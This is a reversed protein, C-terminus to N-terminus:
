NKRKGTPVHTAPPQFQRKQDSRGGAYHMSCDTLPASHILLHFVDSLGATNRLVPSALALFFTTIAWGWRGLSTRVWFQSAERPMMRAGWVGPGQWPSNGGGKKKSKQARHLGRPLKRHSQTRKHANAHTPSPPAASCHTGILVRSESVGINSGRSQWMRLVGQLWPKTEQTWKFLFHEMTTTM